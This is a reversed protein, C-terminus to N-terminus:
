EQVTAPPEGHHSTTPKKAGESHGSAKGEAEQGALASGAEDPPHRDLSAPLKFWFFTTQFYRASRV